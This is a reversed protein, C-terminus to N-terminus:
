EQYPNGWGPKVYNLILDTLEEVSIHWNAVALSIQIVSEIDFNTVVGNLALLEIATQM